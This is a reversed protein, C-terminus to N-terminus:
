LTKGFFRILILRYINIAFLFLLFAVLQSVLVSSIVENKYVLFNNSLFFLAPYYIILTLLIAVPTFYALDTLFKRSSFDAGNVKHYIRM